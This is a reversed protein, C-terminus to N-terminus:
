VNSIRSEQNTNKLYLPLITLKLEKSETMRIPVKSEFIHGLVSNNDTTMNVVKLNGFIIRINEVLCESTGPFYPIPLGKDDIVILHSKCM